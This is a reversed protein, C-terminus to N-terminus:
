ERAPLNQSSMELPIAIWCCGAQDHGSRNKRVIELKQKSKLFSQLALFGHHISQNSIPHISSEQSAKKKEQDRRNKGTVPRRCNQCSEETQGGIHNVLVFLM